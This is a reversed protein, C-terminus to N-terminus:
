VLYSFMKLSFPWQSNVLFSRFLYFLLSADVFEYLAWALSYSLIQDWGIFHLQDALRINNKIREKKTLEYYGTKNIIQINLYFNKYGSTKNHWSIMLICNSFLLLSHNYVWSAIESIIFTHKRFFINEIEYTGTLIM